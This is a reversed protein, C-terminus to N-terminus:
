NPLVADRVVGDFLWVCQIKYYIREQVQLFGDAIRTRELDRM